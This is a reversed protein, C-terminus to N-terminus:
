QREFYDKDAIFYTRIYGDTSIIVFEGTSEIFYVDDNDEKENKHLADPNLAVDSASKQYEEASAFGMEEGHKQYHSELLKANRFTYGQSVAVTTETTTETTTEIVNATTESVTETTDELLSTVAEETAEAITFDESVDAQTTNIYQESITDETIKSNISDIIPEKFYKLGVIICLLIVIVSLLIYEQRKLKNHKQTDGKKIRDASRCEPCRKPLEWGKAKYFEIDKDSITFERGCQKCKRTIM